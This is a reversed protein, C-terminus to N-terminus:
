PALGRLVPEVFLPMSGVLCLVTWARGLAPRWALVGLRREVLMLIGQVVFFSGMMAALPWTTVVLALWVHILTSAAFAALVGLSPRRRRALPLFCHRYFWDRVTLNWREGWFEQLSRSLIPARHIEPLVLGFARYGATILAIGADVAGYSFLGGGAWRLAHHLAGECRPAVSFALSYGLAALAAYGASAALRAVDLRPPARKVARTEFPALVAWLRHAFPLPRRERARDFARLVTLLGTITLFFRYVSMSQPVIWPAAIAPLALLLAAAGRRFGPGSALASLLCSGVVLPMALWPAEHLLLSLDV